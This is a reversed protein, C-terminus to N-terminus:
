PHADDAADPDPKGVGRFVKRFPLAWAIGLTVYVVIEIWLSPREFLSVIYLSLAIYAPLWVLLVVISLLRRTRYRMTM